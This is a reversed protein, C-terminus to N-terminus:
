RNGSRLGLKRADDPHIELVDEDVLETLHM